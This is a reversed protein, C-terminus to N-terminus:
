EVLLQKEERQGLEIKRPKKHEPIIRELYVILMGNLLDASNVFLDENLTFTRSFSRNAIGRHIFGDNDDETSGSIKLIDESLEIDIDERRFGAVALEIQYTNDGTRRINYPPYNPSKVAIDHIRNMREFLGDSGIHFRGFDRFMNDLQSMQSM